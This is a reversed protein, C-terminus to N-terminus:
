YLLNMHICTDQQDCVSHPLEFIHHYTISDSLTGLFHNLLDSSHKIPTSKQSTHTFISSIRNWFKSSSIFLADAFLM